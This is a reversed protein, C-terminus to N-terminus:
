EPYIEGSRPQDWNSRSSAAPLPLAGQGLTRFALFGVFLPLWFTIGRYALTVVAASSLPVNFSALTLALAGEVFGIGSPTPSVITFLHGISFGAIITAPTFEVGFAMFMLMFITILLVKGILGLLIPPVIKFPEGKIARLGDIMEYAFEEARQQSFAERKLVPKLVKNGANALWTLLRRLKDSGRMGLVILTSILIATALLAISALIQVFNLSDREFLIFLGLTLVILFSTYESLLYLASAVTARGTSHGRRRSEAIIVTFGSVGMVPAVVNVFYAATALISITQFKEDLGLAKFIVWYTVALLILWLMEAFVALSIYPLDGQQLTRGISELEAMRALVYVVGLMLVVAVVFKRM